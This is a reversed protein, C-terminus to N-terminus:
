YRPFRFVSLKENTNRIGAPDNMMFVKGRLFDLLYTCGLYEADFPPEKRIVLADLESLDLVARDSLRVGGAQLHIRSASALLRTDELVLDTSEMWYLTHNRKICEAMISFSTDEDPDFKAHESMLFGVKVQKM